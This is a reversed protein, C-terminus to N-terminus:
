NRNLKTATSGAVATPLDTPFQSAIIVGLGARRESSGRQPLSSQMAIRPAWEFLLSHFTSTLILFSGTLGRARPVLSHSDMEGGIPAGPICRNRIVPSVEAFATRFTLVTGIVAPVEISLRPFVTAGGAANNLYLIATHTRQGRRRTCRRGTETDIRYADLHPRYQGGALYRIIHLQEAFSADLGAVASTAEVVARVTPNSDHPFWCAHCTRGDSSTGTTADSVLAPGLRPMAIHRMREALEAGIVGVTLTLRPTECLVQTEFARLPATATM